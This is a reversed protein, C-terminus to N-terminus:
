DKFLVLSDRAPVTAKLFGQDFLCEPNTEESWSDNPLQIEVRTSREGANLIVIAEQEDLKRHFAHVMGEAYLSHFSGTRLVPYNNRLAIAGKYSALLDRDWSAQDHWPFAERCYPDGDASLGVEDGYYICPAGPLTMMAQVCLKLASTDDGMIWLARAMDHSDLMNMQAFNIEWDYLGYMAELDHAFTVADIPRLNLHQHSYDPHLTKGGFFSLLPSTMLYNMVADFQDGQLWRRSDTWIEGCIYAESNASKVVQRFEQWFSDDDIDGPVDLRWGDIGFDIWYKAINFLYQRIAPNHTNFEPLAPLNWWAQYNM